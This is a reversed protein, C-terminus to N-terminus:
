INKDEPFYVARIETFSKKSSDVMDELISRSSSFVLRKHSDNKGAPHAYDCIMIEGIEGAIYNKNYYVDMDQRMSCYIAFYVKNTAQM